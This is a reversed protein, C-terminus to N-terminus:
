AVKFKEEDNPSLSQRKPSRNRDGMRKKEGCCCTFDSLLLWSRGNHRHKFAYPNDRVCGLLPFLLLYRWFCCLHNAKAKVKRELFYALPFM